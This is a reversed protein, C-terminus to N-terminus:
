WRKAKSKLNMEEIINEPLFNLLRELLMEHSFPKSIFDSAGLKSLTVLCNKNITGSVIIVPISRLSDIKKLLKLTQEGNIEPMDVDLFIVLPIHRLASAIGEYADMASYTTFGWFDLILKIISHIEPDDDIILVKFEKAM